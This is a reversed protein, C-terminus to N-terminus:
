NWLYGISVVPLDGSWRNTFAFGRGNPHFNPVSRRVTRRLRIELEADSGQGGWHSVEWKPPAWIHFTNAYQSEILPSNWHIYLEGGGDTAAVINYRVSGETGTTPVGLVLDGEGQFGKREGPGIVPPPAWESSTYDGHDVEDGAFTLTADLENRIFVKMRIRSM